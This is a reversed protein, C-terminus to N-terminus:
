DIRVCYFKIFTRNTDLFVVKESNILGTAVTQWSDIPQALNSTSLLAFGRGSIGTFELRIGNPPQQITGIKPAYDGYFFTATAVADKDTQLRIWHASYGQPFLHRIKKGPPVTFRGYESWVDDAAFDVEVIFTVIEESKHSLEIAKEDFGYFLFPDSPVGATVPTDKWVGGIGGPKGMQWLDDVNGFWLAAKGDDFKFIHGDQQADAKVGTM